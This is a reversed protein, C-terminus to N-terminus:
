EFIEGTKLQNGRLFDLISMKKANEAQIELIKITGDITKVYLGKKYDSCIITGPKITAYNETEINKIEESEIKVCDVKWFKLKKGNCFTYAGMIPNLGRVLNKIEQTTQTDWKIQAMSKALMPAMTAEGSQKTRTATGDDIQKVTKVLLEAGLKSLRCWLEGTTENDDIKVVEKLIIDGTDMNEDMYM